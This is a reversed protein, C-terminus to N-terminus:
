ERNEWGLQGVIENLENIFEIHNYEDDSIWRKISERFQPHALLKSFVKDVYWYKGDTCLVKTRVM